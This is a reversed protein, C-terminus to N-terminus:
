RTVEALTTALRASWWRAREPPLAVARLQELNVEPRRVSLHGDVPTFPEPVLDHVFLESTALGCDYPLEPLAAALAVGAALGISSEVASSVVVPLGLKEALELCRRVGGLPQVKLVAIDAAELEVVREPDGSRRISEDAAILTDIGASALRRRLQALEEVSACPQEVYELNWRGLARIAAFAEDVTWAGNVDIRVRGQTGLADAVAEIRAEDDALTSRPDAVKIKATRCGSDVAIQHAVDPAVVPVTVNVPVRDRVPAPWPQEAAERAAQWWGHLETGSYDVFPSWEAWGAAGEFVLGERLDIGRFSNRLPLQYGYIPKPGDVM